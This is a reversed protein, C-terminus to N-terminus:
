IGTLIDLHNQLINFCKRAIANSDDPGYWSSALQQKDLAAITLPDKFVAEYFNVLKTYRDPYKNKFSTSVMFGRLAGPVYEMSAVIQIERICPADFSSSRADNFILLPKIEDSIPLFGEAGSLGIDVVGGLVAMRIPAGGDFTVIRLKEMPINAAKALLVLNVYDMSRPQIAISLGAPNAKLALFMDYVNNLKSNEKATAILTSDRAPLNIMTFDQAKFPAHQTLINMDIKDVLEALLFYGDDPQQLFYEEGLLGGAGPINVVVAPQGLREGLRPAVIHALNDVYGGPPSPNIITLPRSPSPNRIGVPGAGDVRVLDADSIRGLVFGRNV